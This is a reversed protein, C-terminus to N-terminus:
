LRSYLAEPMVVGLANYLEIGIVRLMDFSYYFPVLEYGKLKRRTTEVFNALLEKDDNRYMFIPQLESNAFRDTVDSSYGLKVAYEGSDLKIRVIYIGAKATKDEAETM